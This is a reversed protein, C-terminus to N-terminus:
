TFRFQGAPILRTRQGYRKLQLFIKNDGASNCKNWEVAPSIEWVIKEPVFMIIKIMPQSLAIGNTKEM